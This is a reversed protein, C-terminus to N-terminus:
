KASIRRLSVARPAESCRRRSPKRPKATLERIADSAIWRASKSDIAHIEWAAAIGNGPMETDLLCVDPQHEVAAEIASAADSAEACVTLHRDSALARRIRARTEADRDAVVIRLTDSM